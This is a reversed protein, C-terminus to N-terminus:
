VRSVSGPRSCHQRFRCRGRATGFRDVFLTKGNMSPDSNRFLHKRALRGSLCRSYSPANEDLDLRTRLGQNKWSKAEQGEWLEAVPFECDTPTDSRKGPIRSRRRRPTTSRTSIRVTSNREPPPTGRFPRLTIWGSRESLLQCNSRSCQQM